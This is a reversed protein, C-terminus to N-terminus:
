RSAITMKLIEGIFPAGAMSGPMGHAAKYSVQCVLPPAEGEDAM